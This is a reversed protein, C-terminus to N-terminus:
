GPDGRLAYGAGPKNVLWRPRAPDPEIKRRLSAILGRLNNSKDATTKGWTALVLADISLVHGVNRALAVLVRLEFRTLALSKGGLAAEHGSPDIRLRGVHITRREAPLAGRARRVLARMRAFMEGRSFPRALTDDAGADLAAIKQEASAESSVVLVPARSRARARGVLEVVPPAIAAVAVVLLDPQVGTALGELGGRPELELVQHGFAVLQQHLGRHEASDDGILALSFTV